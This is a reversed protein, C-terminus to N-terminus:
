STSDKKAVWGIFLNDDGSGHEHSIERHVAVSFGEQRLLQKIENECLWQEWESVNLAGLKEQNKGTIILMGGPAVVRGMERIAHPFTVAHELTEICFAFDFFGDPAPIKLLCGHLPNIGAPLYKLIKESLDMGYAEVNPCDALLRKLFRGKGCGMDVIRNPSAQNFAHAVLQFRGDNRDISDHLLDVEADFSRRIKWYLADLFYKVAWSIEKRPLYHAGIGYSGFFGGSDNQLSCAYAFAEDALDKIGLKYWIVAYQLLGTSCVWKVDRYAPVFGYKRQLKTIHDMSETAREIEDLDVLAEIIYAHFHSLTNFETLDDKSLYFNLARDVADLYDQRGWKRGADRVPEMCYLHIAEPVARGGWRPWQSMDPTIIQGSAKAQKIIWDCGRIIPEEYEPCVDVLAL